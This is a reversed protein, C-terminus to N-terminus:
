SRPSCRTGRRVRGAEPARTVAVSLTSMAEIEIKERTPRPHQLRPLAAFDSRIHHSQWSPGIKCRRHWDPWLPSMCDVEVRICRNRSKRRRSKRRYWFQEVRHAAIGRRRRKPCAPPMSMTSVIAATPESELVPIAISAGSKEVSRLAPPSHLDQFANEWM